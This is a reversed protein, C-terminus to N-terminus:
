HLSNSHQVSSQAQKCPSATISILCYYYYYYYISRTPFLWWGSIQSLSGKFCFDTFEHGLFCFNVGGKFCCDAPSRIWNGELSGSSLTVAWLMAGRPWMDSENTEMGERSDDCQEETFPHRSSVMGTAIANLELRDLSFGWSATCSAEGLKDEM